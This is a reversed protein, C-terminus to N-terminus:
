RNWIATNEGLQEKYLDLWRDTTNEWTFRTRVHEAAEEGMRRLLVPDDFLQQIGSALETRLAAPDLLLGTRGHDVLEQLGGARTALVPVGSAMAEAAVLGFAERESSPVVVIDALRFWRAIDGHPVFPIFRVHRPWNAGLRHLRSVYPTIRNKGYFASGIILLLAEPHKQIVEPLAKLVHHVGKIELLRGIYVIIKRGEYGMQKLDLDRQERQETGWRSVFQNADIGLHNVVLKRPPIVVRRRMQDGLFRSNVIIRDVHRICGRLGPLSLMPPTAFTLSHLSLWLPKRPFYTRFWRVFRPRNEVQIADIRLMRIWRSVQRLYGTPGRSRIRIITTGGVTERAPYGGKQRTFVYLEVHPSLRRSLERVVQEVSSSRDSLVEFQGPTVIAIKRGNMPRGRRM